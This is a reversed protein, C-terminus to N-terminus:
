GHAEDAMEIAELALKDLWDARALERNNIERLPGLHEPCVGLQLAIAESKKVTQRIETAWQLAEGATMEFQEVM